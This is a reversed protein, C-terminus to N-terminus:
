KVMKTKRKEQSLIMTQVDRRARNVATETKQIHEPISMGGAM